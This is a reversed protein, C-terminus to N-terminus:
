SANPPFISSITGLPCPCLIHAPNKSHTGNMYVHRVWHDRSYLFLVEDPSQVVEMFDRLNLIEPVGGPLCMTQLELHPNDKLEQEAIKRLAERTAPKLIPNSLDPVWPDGAIAYNITGNEATRSVRPHAPDVM